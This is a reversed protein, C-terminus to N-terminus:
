DSLSEIVKETETFFENCIQQMKELETDFDTFKYIYSVKIHKDKTGSRGIVLENNYKQNFSSYKEKVKETGEDKFDYFVNSFEIEQGKKPIITLLCKNFYKSKIKNITKDLNGNNYPAKKPLSKCNKVIQTAYIRFLAYGEELYTFKPNEELMRQLTNELYPRCGITRFEESGEIDFPSEYGADPEFLECKQLTRDLEKDLHMLKFDELIEEYSNKGSLINKLIIFFGTDIQGHNLIMERQLKEPWIALKNPQYVEAQSLIAKTIVELQEIDQIDSKIWRVKDSVTSSSILTLMSSLTDDVNDEFFDLFIQWSSYNKKIFGICDRETATHPKFHKLPYIDLMDGNKSNQRLAFGKEFLKNVFIKMEDLFKQDKFTESDLLDLSHALCLHDWLEKTHTLMNEMSKDDKVYANVAPLRSIREGDTSSFYYSLNKSNYLRTKEKTLM